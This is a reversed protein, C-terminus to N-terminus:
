IKKLLNLDYKCMMQFNKATDIQLVGEEDLVVPMALWWRDTPSENEALDLISYVCFHYRKNIKQIDFALKYKQQFKFCEWVYYLKRTKFLARIKSLSLYRTWGGYVENKIEALIDNAYEVQENRTLSGTLLSFKKEKPIEKFICELAIKELSKM